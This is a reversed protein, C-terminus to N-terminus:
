PYESAATAADPSIAEVAIAVACVHVPAFESEHAKPPFQAEPATGAGLEATIM